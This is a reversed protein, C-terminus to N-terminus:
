NVRKIITEVRCRGVARLGAGLHGNLFLVVKM